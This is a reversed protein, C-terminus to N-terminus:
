KSTKKPTKPPDKPPKSEQQQGQRRQNNRSPLKPFSQPRQLKEIDSSQRQRTNQSPQTKNKKM